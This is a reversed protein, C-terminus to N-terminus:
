VKREFNPCKTEKWVPDFNCLDLIPMIIVWGNKIGTSNFKNGKCYKQCGIHCDGPIRYMHKCFYCENRENLEKTEM